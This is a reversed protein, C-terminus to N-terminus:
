IVGAYLEPPSLLRIEGTRSAEHIPEPTFGAGSFYLLRATAV